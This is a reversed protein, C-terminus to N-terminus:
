IININAFIIYKYKINYKYCIINVNYLKKYIIYSSIYLYSM